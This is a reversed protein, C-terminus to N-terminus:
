FVTKSQTCYIKNRKILLYSFTRMILNFDSKTDRTSFIKCSSVEVFRLVNTRCFISIKFINMFHLKFTLLLKFSVADAASSM